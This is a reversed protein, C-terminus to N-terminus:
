PRFMERDIRECDPCDVDHYVGHRNCYLGGSSEIELAAFGLRLLELQVDEPNRNWSEGDWYSGSMYIEDIQERLKRAEKSGCNLLSTIRARVQSLIHGWDGETVNADYWTEWNPDLAKMRHMAEGLEAKESVPFEDMIRAARGMLSGNLSRAM